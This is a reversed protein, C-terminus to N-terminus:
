TCLFLVYMNLRIEELHAGPKTQKLPDGISIAITSTANSTIITDPNRHDVLNFAECIGESHFFICDFIGLYTKIWAFNAGAGKVIESVGLYTLELKLKMTGSCRLPVFHNTKQGFSAVIEMTRKIRYFRLEVHICMLCSVKTVFTYKDSQLRLGYM